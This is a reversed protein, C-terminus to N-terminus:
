DNNHGEQNLWKAGIWYREGTELYEILEWKNDPRNYEYGKSDDPSLVKVKAGDLIFTNSTM